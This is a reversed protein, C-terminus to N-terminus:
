TTVDATVDTHGDEKKQSRTKAVNLMLHNEWVERYLRKMDIISIGLWQLTMLSSKCTPLSLATSDWDTQFPASSGTWYYTVLSATLWPTSTRGIHVVSCTGTVLSWASRCLRKPWRIGGWYQGQPHMSGRSLFMTQNWSFWTTIPDELHCIYVAMVIASTLERPLFYLHM